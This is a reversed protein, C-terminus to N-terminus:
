KTMAVEILCCEETVGVVSATPWWVSGGKLCMFGASQTKEFYQEHLRLLCLDEKKWMGSSVSM